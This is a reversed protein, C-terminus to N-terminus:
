RTLSSKLTFFHAIGLNYHATYTNAPAAGSKVSVSAGDVIAALVWVDGTEPEYRRRVWWTYDNCTM